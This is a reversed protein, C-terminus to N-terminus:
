TELTRLIARVPSGDFGALKLPPAILEYRGPTVADLRLGEIIAMDQALFRAHALLQKDAFLDVSPTDIGVLRVGCDHLHDVLNPDLAAFDENWQEPDPCTGTHLLLRHETPTAPLDEITVRRGRVGEVRMVECPGVYLDLPQEDITRGETGYHSPADAHSGVHVTTRLTSLTVPDGRDLQLLVEREPANDGPWVKIQTTITSTIDILM